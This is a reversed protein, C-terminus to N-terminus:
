LLLGSASEFLDNKFSIVSLIFSSLWGNKKELPFSMFQTEINFNFHEVLIWFLQHCYNRGQWIVCFELSPSSICIKLLLFWSFYAWFWLSLIWLLKPRWLMSMTKSQRAFGLTFPKWVLIRFEDLRDHFKLM